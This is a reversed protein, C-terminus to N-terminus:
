REASGGDPDIPSRGIPKDPPWKGAVAGTAVLHNAVVDALEILRACREDGLRARPEASLEDTHREIEDRLQRGSPTFGGDATILGRRRLRESAAQWEDATWGRIKEIISANGVGRAALLVHAELGDIAAAALAINHSDGRQERWLTCAHWLRMADSDPWALDVHAGFLPRGATDTGGIGLEALSAADAIADHRDFDVLARDLAQAICTNRLRIAENPTVTSWASPLADAVMIPAFNYLVAAGAAPGVAGLPAVRYAVYARWFEPLGVDAFARTEPSYYSINHIIGLARALARAPRM